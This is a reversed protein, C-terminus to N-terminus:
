TLCRIAKKALRCFCIEKMVFLHVSWIYIRSDNWCLRGVIALFFFIEGGRVWQARSWFLAVYCSILNAHGHSSDGFTHFRRTSSQIIVDTSHVRGNANHLWREGNGAWQDTGPLLPAPHVGRPRITCTYLQRDASPTATSAEGAPASAVQQPGTWWGETAGQWGSM